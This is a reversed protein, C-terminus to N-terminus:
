IRGFKEPAYAEAPHLSDVPYAPPLPTSEGDSSSSSGGDGSVMISPQQEAIEIIPPSITADISTSRGHGGDAGKLVDCLNQLAANDEPPPVQGRLIEECTVVKGYFAANASKREQIVTGDYGVGAYFGRSKIYSFIPQFKKPQAGGKGRIEKDIKVRSGNVELTPLAPPSNLFTTSDDPSATDKGKGKNDVKTAWDVARGVGWPGAVAAVNGGISVRKTMFDALAEQTNIVCVSDFIDMGAVFGGGFSHLQIASPPSWSGDHLRAVLIGPGSAFKFELGARFTTFIALGVAENIIRTPITMMAQPRKPTSATTLQGEMPPTAASDTVKVPDAYVGEKCFTKLILAAKDCEKELTGPVFGTGGFKQALNNFGSSTKQGLSAF